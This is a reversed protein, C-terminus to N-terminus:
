VCVFVYSRKKVRMIETSYFPVTYIDDDDDKVKDRKKKSGFGTTQHDDIFSTM